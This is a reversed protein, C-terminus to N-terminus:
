EVIELIGWKGDQRAWALGESFSRIDDFIFPVIVNGSTDIIGWTSTGWGDLRVVAFGQSFERVEDFVPEIVMNGERDIFGLPYEWGGLRVAALGESFNHVSGFQLAIVENGETDIFGWEWAQGQQNIIGVPAFGEFFSIAAQYRGFPILMNGERDIFSATGDEESYVLAFGESFGTASSYIFPVVVNGETDIFGWGGSEWDGQWVVARGERFHPIFEMFDAFRDFQPEIVMNGGRDIFGWKGTEWDGAMVAALGDSFDSTLDFDFPIVLNGERDMFGWRDGEPSESRVAVLGESFNRADSFSFPIILEGMDNFFGVGGDDMSYIGALGDVFIPAGRYAYFTQLHRYEIPIVIEGQTNIYGLIHTGGWDGMEDEFYEVGAMGGHFPFVADFEWVPEVLWRIISTDMELVPEAEYNIIYTGEDEENDLEEIYYEYDEDEAEPVQANGCASLIFGFILIMVLM